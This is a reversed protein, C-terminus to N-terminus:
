RDKYNNRIQQRGVLSHPGHLCPGTQRIRWPVWLELYVGPGHLSHFSLIAMGMIIVIFNGTDGHSLPLDTTM